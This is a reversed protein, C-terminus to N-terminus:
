HGRKQRLTREPDAAYRSGHHRGSALDPRSGREEAPVGCCRELLLLDPGVPEATILREAVAYRRRYAAGSEERARM